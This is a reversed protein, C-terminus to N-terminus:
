LNQTSHTISTRTTKRRTKQAGHAELRLGSHVSGARELKREFILATGVEELPEWSFDSVSDIGERKAGVSIRILEYTKWAPKKPEIGFVSRHFITRDLCEMNADQSGHAEWLQNREEESRDVCRGLPRTGDM